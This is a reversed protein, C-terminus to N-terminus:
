SRGSAAALAKDVDQEVVTDKFFDPNGHTWLETPNTFAFDRFDQDSMLGKEVLEYAEALVERLDPVDWHGIDSSLVAGLRAGLPNLRDNFAISNMVDDAECGFFFRPGFLDYIDEVKEIGCAAWEDLVDPGPLGREAVERIEDLLQTALANGYRKVLDVFLDTDLNSPNYNDISKGNRKEWHAIMDSYLSCGWAVGGELFAFRLDPFRRTVGGMFLAKCTAEGAAAFSGIHNYVYNSISRRSGWGQGGSHFTPTVKLELCKAWVADYDYDSDIGFVDLRDAVGALGPYERQAKPLPRRVYGPLMVVKLGAVNVAHELAEIAEQPTHMPIAAAPTMRDGYERYVDANLTNLARCAVRRMEEDNLSPLALGLSPYLVAYDLGIEDMREHLLKPLSVTARDLTNKAPTPWWAPRSVWDDRREAESLRFYRWNDKEKVYRDAIEHGGIQKLYDVFMPILEILHGDSDIVPHDLHQRIRASRTEYATVVIAEREARRGKPGDIVWPAKPGLDDGVIKPSDLVRM